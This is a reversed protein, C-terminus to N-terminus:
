MVHNQEDGKWLSELQIPSSGGGNAVLQGVLWGGFITLVAVQGPTQVGQTTMSPDTHNSTELM